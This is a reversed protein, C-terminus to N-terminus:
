RLVEVRVGKLLPRRRLTRRKRAMPRTRKCNLQFGPWRTRRILGPQVFSLAALAGLASVLSM